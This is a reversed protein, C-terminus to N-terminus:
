QYAERLAAEFGPRAAEAAPTAMPQAPSNVTGFENHITHEVPNVVEREHPGHEVTEWGERMQGTDVRSREKAGTEVDLATKAVALAAKREANATIQPVRSTWRAM